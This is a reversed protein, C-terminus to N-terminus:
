TELLLVKLTQLLTWNHFSLRLYVPKTKAKAVFSRKDFHIHISMVMSLMGTTSCFGNCYMSKMRNKVCLRQPKLGNRTQM